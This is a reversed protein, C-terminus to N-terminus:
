NNTITVTTTEVCSTTAPNNLSDGQYRVRWFFTGGPAFIVNGDGTFTTPSTGTAATLSAVSKNTFSALAGSGTPATGPSGTSGDADCAALTSYLYFDVAGPTATPNGLNITASDRLIVNQATTVSSTGLVFRNTIVCDTQKIGNPVVIQFVGTSANLVTAVVHGQLRTVADGSAHAAATTGLQAREVTLTNGAVAAVLLKEDGILVYNGVAFGAGSVVSMSTASVTVAASLTTALAAPDSGTGDFCRIDALTYTASSIATEMIRYNEAPILDTHVHTQGGKIAPAGTTANPRLIVYQRGDTGAPPPDGVVEELPHSAASSAFRIATDDGSVHLRDVKYSFSPNTDVRTTTGDPDVLRKTVTLIGCNTIPKFSALVTDKYDATDSNGTVTGPLVNAFTVCSDEPFVDTTLNIALEGRFRDARIAAEANASLNEIPGLTCTHPLTAETTCSFVRKKIDDVPDLSNGQQDWLIIFDGDSRGRWPNCNSILATEGATEPHQFDILPNTVYVCGTPLGSKQFEISIFGSGNSSDRAWGFYLWQDNNSGDKQTTLWVTDLDVQANIITFSLTPLADNNIDGIKASGNIPGLEKDNSNPDDTAAIGSDPVVGDIDFPNQASARTATLGIVALTVVVGVFRRSM